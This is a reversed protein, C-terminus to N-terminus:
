VLHNFFEEFEIGLDHILWMMRATRKLEIKFPRNHAKALEFSKRDGYESKLQSHINKCKNFLVIMREDLEEKYVIREGRDADSVTNRRGITLEEGDIILMIQHQVASHTAYKSIRDANGIYCDVENIIILNKKKYQEIHQFPDAVEIEESDGFQSHNEALFQAVTGTGGMAKMQEMAFQITEEDTFYFLDWKGNFTLFIIGFQNKIEIAKM